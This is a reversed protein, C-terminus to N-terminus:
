NISLSTHTTKNKYDHWNSLQLIIKCVKRSFYIKRSETSIPKILLKLTFSEFKRYRISSSTKIRILYVDCKQGRYFGTRKKKMKKKKKVVASLISAGGSIYFM